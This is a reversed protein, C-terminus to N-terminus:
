ELLSLALIAHSMFYARALNAFLHAGREPIKMGQESHVKMAKEWEKNMEMQEKTKQRSLWSDTLAKPIKHLLLFWDSLHTQM